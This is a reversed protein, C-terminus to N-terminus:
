FIEIMLYLKVNVAIDAYFRTKNKWWVVMYSRICCWHISVVTDATYVYMRTILHPMYSLIREIELKLKKKMRHSQTIDAWPESATPGVLNILHRSQSKQNSFFDGVVFSTTAAAFCHTSVLAQPNQKICEWSPGCYCFFFVFVYTSFTSFFTCIWSITAIKFATTIVLTTDLYIALNFIWKM